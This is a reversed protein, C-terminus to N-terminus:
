VTIKLNIIEVRHFNFNFKIEINSRTLGRSSVKLGSAWSEKVFNFKQAQRPNKGIFVAAIVKNDLM